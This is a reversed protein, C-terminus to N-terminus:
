RKIRHAAGEAFTSFTRWKLRAPLYPNNVTRLYAVAADDNGTRMLQITWSEIWKGDFDWGSDMVAVTLTRDHQSVTFKGAKVEQWKGDILMSVHAENRAIAIRYSETGAGAPGTKDWKLSVSWDGSFDADAAPTCALQEISSGAARVADVAEPYGACASTKFLQRARQVASDNKDQVLLSALHFAAAPSGAAVAKELWERGKALDDPAGRNVLLAGLIYQAGVVGARAPAECKTLAEEPSKQVAATCEGYAASYDIPPTDVAAALIHVVALAHLILM